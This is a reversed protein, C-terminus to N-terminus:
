RDLGRYPGESDPHWYPSAAADGRILDNAKVIARDRQAKALRIQDFLSDTQARWGAIEALLERADASLEGPKRTASKRKFWTM